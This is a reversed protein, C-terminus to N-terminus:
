KVLVVKRSAIFRKSTEVSESFVRVLYVGSPQNEARWEVEYLGKSREGSVLEAVVNGLMNYVELKVRSQEPLGYRIRTSPNFPNPYAEQLVYEEPIASLTNEVSTAPSTDVTFGGTLTATGGGPTANTVSVNRAGTAASLAISINVKIQTASTITTSNVTVDSGFSVSSVGELFNTGTLVVNISSGRGARTPSVSSLTPSPNNVTFAGSLTATGGGPAANTVTIDRPGPTAGIDITVSATVQTSTFSSVSNVTIGSGYAPTTVGPIFNTGTVTVSLTQGRNGSTPTISALTPAPNNVTFAGSLATTGGGPAPNVVSVDRAGLAADLPITINVTMQTASNVTSSNVTIGSGFNATSVSAVFNTGTLIVNVTEGRVGTAPSASALTPAPNGITFANNLTTSGGGPASNIVSVGRPGTTAEAAVTVNATMQSTSNVSLSNVSVNSGFDVSTAESYYGRGNLVVNLTQGRSASNPAISSLSPPPFVLTFAETLTVTGGGPPANTVTVSRVGVSATMSVTINVRIQTSSLVTFSNVLFDPDLSPTSLGATFGTGTLTLTATSGLQVTSPAVSTLTPAPNGTGDAIWRSFQGVGTLTITNLSTNVTGGKASWTSGVDTSNYLQIGSETNGNLENDFYRYVFTANLGTNTAPTIDFYRKVPIGPPFTPATGTVRTVTTTGPWAGAANIEVGMGGFTQNMGTSCVRATTLNGLVSYDATESITATPGLTLTYSETKLDGNIFELGGNVTTAGVLKVYTPNNVVLNAYPLTTVNQIATGAYIITSGSALTVSGDVIFPALAGTFTHGGNVTTNCGAAITLSNWEGGYDGAISKVDGGTNVFTTAVNVVGNNTFTSSNGRFILNGPGDITGFLLTTAGKPRIADAPSKGTSLIKPMEGVERQVTVNDDAILTESAAVRLTGGPKVIIPERFIGKATAISGDWVVLTEEFTGNQVITVDGQTEFSDYSGHVYGDSSNTFTGGVLTFAYGYIELSGHNTIASSAFTTSTILEVSCAAAITLNCESWTGSGSLYKPSAGGNLQITAVSIEGGNTISVGATNSVFTGAGDITGGSQVEVSSTTTLTKTAPVTLEADSDVTVPGDFSNTGSATTTGSSVELPVSFTGGQDITTSGETVVDGGGENGVVQGSSSINLSVGNLTFTAGFIDISGDVIQITGGTITLASTLELGSSADLKMTCGTFTGTGSINRGNENDIDVHAISVVADTLTVSYWVEGSGWLKLTSAADGGSLIGSIDLDNELTLTKTAPVNLTGSEAITISGTFPNVGSASTVGSNVVLPVSFTGGQNISTSGETMVSGGYMALVSGSTTLNVTVGNLTLDSGNLDLEGSNMVNITGGSVTGPNALKITSSNDINFSAGSQLNCIGSFYVIKDSGGNVLVKLQSITAAGESPLTLSYGGISGPLDLVSTSANAGSLTGNVTVSSNAQFTKGTGVQVSAGSEITVSSQATIASASNWTGDVQIHGIVAIDGTYGTANWTVGTGISLSGNITLASAGSGGATWTGSSSELSLHGYTRGAFSTAPTLTSTGRYIFNSASSLTASGLPTAISSTTNHIYTGGDNVAWTAGSGISLTGQNLVTGNVTLDTGTGNAITLRKGVAITIQGGADTVTQDITTDATVTVTHGVLITIVGDSSTPTSTAAVWEGGDYREWTSTANWNGSAISRYDGASQAWATATLATIAVLGILAASFFKTALKNM